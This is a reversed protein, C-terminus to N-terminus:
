VAVQLKRTSVILIESSIAQGALVHVIQDSWPPLVQVILIGRAPLPYKGGYRSSRGVADEVDFKPFVGEANSPRWHQVKLHTQVLIRGVEFHYIAGQISVIARVSGYARLAVGARVERLKLAFRAPQHVTQL